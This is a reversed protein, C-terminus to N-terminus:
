QKQFLFFQEVPDQQQSLLFHLLWHTYEFTKEVIIAEVFAPIDEPGHYFGAQCRIIGFKAVGTFSGIQEHPVLVQFAQELGAGQQEFLM